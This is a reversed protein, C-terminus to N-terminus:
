TGCFTQYGKKSTPSQYEKIDKQNEYPRNLISLLKNMVELNGENASTLAEEVKHNRPIIIPNVNKMIDLQKEKSINNMLSRKKWSDLWNIFDKDKYIEDDNIKINMLYCFTNTYDAKNKEMWNFLNDILKKDDKDVGFLGLKDRMM